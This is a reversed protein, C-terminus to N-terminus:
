CIRVEVRNEDNNWYATCCLNLAHAMTGICDLGSVRSRSSNYITIETHARNWEWKNVGYSTDTFYFNHRLYEAFIELQTMIM